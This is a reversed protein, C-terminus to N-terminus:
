FTGEYKKLVGPNMATDVSARWWDRGKAMHIWDVCEWYIEELGLEAFCYRVKM